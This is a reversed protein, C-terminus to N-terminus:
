ESQFKRSTALIAALKPADAELREMIRRTSNIHQEACGVHVRKGRYRTIGGERKRISYGCLECSGRAM